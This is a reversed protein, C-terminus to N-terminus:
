EYKKYYNNGFLIDYQLLRYDNETKQLDISVPKDNVPLYHSIQKIFRFIHNTDQGTFELLYPGLSAASIPSFSSSLQRSNNDYNSWIVLPVSKMKKADESSWKNDNGVIFGTQQYVLYEKGLYPLHDGFFLVVTPKDSKTLHDVLLELSKDADKLGEAYVELMRIGDPSIDGTINISTNDYRDEPYPGHNQMTVAFVLQPQDTSDIQEIIKQSVEIDDIYEGRISAESFYDLHLFKDFGLLSYVREREYFWSHYPHIATALYNKNKLIRALSPMPEQVYQQYAISGTPLFETSLGTLIEFEVNATSGGFVPSIMTGAINENRLKRFFPIPDESFSVNPLITPDWYAENMIIIVNPDITDKMDSSVGLYPEQYLNYEEFIRRIEDESYDRPPKIVANEINMIFGLVFGNQVSNESQLWFIHEIDMKKFANDLPTHRYFIFTLLILVGILFIIVRNRNNVRYSPLIFRVGIIFVVILLGMLMLALIIESAVKPLLNIAQDTRLLDWPLLPEGLFQKKVMNTLCLLILILSSSIIGLHLSGFLAIFLLSFLAILFYNILFIYYYESLWAVTEFVSERQILEVVLVQIFIIVSLIRILNGKSVVKKGNRNHSSNDKAFGRFAKVM